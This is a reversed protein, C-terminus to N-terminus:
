CSLVSPFIRNTCRPLVCWGFTGRKVDLVIKTNWNGNNDERTCKCVKAYKKGIIPAVVMLLVSFPICYIQYTDLFMRFTQARTDNNSLLKTTCVNTQLALLFCDGNKVLTGQMRISLSFLLILTSPMGLDHPIILSRQTKAVLASLILVINM